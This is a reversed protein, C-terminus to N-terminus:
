AVKASTASGPAEAAEVEAIVERLREPSMNRLALLISREGASLETRGQQGTKSDRPFAPNGSTAPRYRSGLRDRLWVIRAEFAPEIGTPTM